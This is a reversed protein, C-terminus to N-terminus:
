AGNELPHDAPRRRLLYRHRGDLVLMGKHNHVTSRFGVVGTTRSPTLEDV